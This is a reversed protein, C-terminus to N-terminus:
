AFAAAASAMIDHTVRVAVLVEVLSVEVLEVLAGAEAVGGVTKRVGFGFGGGGKSRDGGSRNGCVSWCSGSNSCIGGQSMPVPSTAPNMGWM